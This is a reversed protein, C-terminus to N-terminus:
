SNGKRRKRETYNEWAKILQPMYESINDATIGKKMIRDSFLKITQNPMLYKNNEKNYRIEM